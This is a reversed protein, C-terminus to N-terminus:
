AGAIRGTFSAYLGQVPDIGALVASAMGDPM